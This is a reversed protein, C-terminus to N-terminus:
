LVIMRRSNILKCLCFRWSLSKTNLRLAVSRYYKRGLLIKWPNKTYTNPTYQRVIYANLKRHHSAACTARSGRLQVVQRGSASDPVGEGPGGVGLDGDHRRPFFISWYRMFHQSLWYGILWYTKSHLGTGSRETTGFSSLFVSLVRLAGKKCTKDNEVTLWLWSPPPLPLKWWREWEGFLSKQAACTVSSKAVADHICAHICQRKPGPPCVSRSPVTRRMSRMPWKEPFNLPYPHPTNPTATCSSVWEALNEQRRSARVHRLTWPRWVHGLVPGGRAGGREAVGGPDSAFGACGRQSDLVLFVDSCLINVWHFPLVLRKNNLTGYLFFNRKCCLSGRLVCHM